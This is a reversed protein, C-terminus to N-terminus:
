EEEESSPSLRGRHLVVADPLVPAWVGAPGRAPTGQVPLGRGPRGRSGRGEALESHVRGSRRPPHGCLLPSTWGRKQRGPPNVYALMTIERFNMWAGKAPCDQFGRWGVRDAASHREAAATVAPRGGCASLFLASARPTREAPRGAPSAGCAGVAVGLEPSQGRASLAAVRVGRPPASNFSAAEGAVDDVRNSVLVGLEANLAGKTWYRFSPQSKTQATSRLPTAVARYQAKSEFSAPPKLYLTPDADASPAKFNMSELQERAETSMKAHCGLTFYVVSFREGKFTDVSHCNNGNFM